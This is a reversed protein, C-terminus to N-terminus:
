PPHAHAVVSAALYSSSVADDVSVVAVLVFASWSREGLADGEPLQDCALHHWGSGAASRTLSCAYLVAFLSVKEDLVLLSRAKKRVLALALNARWVERKNRLGFEGVLRLEADLRAKDYPRRPTKVTKNKVIYCKGM